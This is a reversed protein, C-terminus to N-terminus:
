RRRRRDRAQWCGNHWHRREDLGTGAFSAPDVPWAVVHPTAPPILQDCGPCRYPKTSTSGTLKRVVWDGDPWEEVQQHGGFM